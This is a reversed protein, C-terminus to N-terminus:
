HILMFESSNLLVWQVARYGMMPDKESEYLKLMWTTEADTPPRSLTALYLEVIVQKPTGKEAVITRLTQNGDLLHDGNMLKLVQPIGHTFESSSDREFTTNFFKLFQGKTEGFGSKRKNKQNENPNPRAIEQGLATVLSAYLVDTSPQKLAM